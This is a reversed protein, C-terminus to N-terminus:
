EYVLCSNIKNELLTFKKKSVKSLGEQDHIRNRLHDCERTKAELQERILWVDDVSDNEQLFQAAPDEQIVACCCFHILM